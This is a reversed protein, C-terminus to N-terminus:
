RQAAFRSAGPGAVVVYVATGHSAIETTFTLGAFGDRSAEAELRAKITIPAQYSSLQSDTGTLSVTFTAADM